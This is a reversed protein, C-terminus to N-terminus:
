VEGARVGPRAAARAAAQARYCIRYIERKREGHPDREAGPLLFTRTIDAIYGDVTAGLDIWVLDGPQLLRDGTEAHPVASRPGSAVHVGFPSWTGLQRLAKEIEAAIQSER